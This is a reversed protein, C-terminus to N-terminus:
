NTSASNENSPNRLTQVSDSGEHTYKIRCTFKQFHPWLSGNIVHLSFRLAPVGSTRDWLGAGGALASVSFGQQSQSTSFSSCESLFAPQLGWSKDTGRCRGAWPMKGFPLRRSGDSDKITCFICFAPWTSFHEKIARSPGRTQPFWRKGSDVLVYEPETSTTHINVM